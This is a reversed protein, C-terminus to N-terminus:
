ISNRKILKTPIIIEKHIGTNVFEAAHIGMSNFDTSIVSIGSQIYKKMPTENYSIIGVEEGLKLSCADVADLLRALARDSVSIYLEGPKPNLKTTKSDIKFLLNNQESFYRVSEIIVDPHYTYAPYLLVVQKYKTICGNIENLATSLGKEFDQIIFSAGDPMHINWDIILLKNKDIKSCIEKVRPHDFSMIIYKSYKGMSDNLLKEFVEIDYHHFNLDIAYERSLAGRFSDYLVEKYAKFTDLFLFIRGSNCSVFYGKQPYSEIIGRSKLLNYAKVVTDRSVFCNNILTNVSPLPDGVILKKNNIADMIEDALQQFKPVPSESNIHITLDKM